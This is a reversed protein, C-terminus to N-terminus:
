LRYETPTQGTNKKFIRIFYNYDRYGVLESIEKIKKNTNKLYHKAAELRKNIMYQNITDDFAKKFIICAYSESVSFNTSIDQLSLEENDYNEDIYHRIQYALPYQTYRSDTSQFFSTLKDLLYSEIDTLFPMQWVMDRLAEPTELPLFVASGCLSATEYLKHLLAIFFNKTTSILTGDFRRLKEVMNKVYMMCATEDHQGLAKEFPLSADQGFQYVLHDHEEEYFLVANCKYYFGRQLCISATQYSQYLDMFEPVPHGTALLFQCTSELIDYLLYCINGIESDPVPNKEKDKLNIHVVTTDETKEGILVCSFKSLALRSKLLDCISSQLSPLGEEAKLLHIIFTIWSGSTDVKPYAITLFDQLEKRQQARVPQLLSLAIKNKIAPLSLSLKHALADSEQKFSTLSLCKEVAIKLTAILEAPQFPKEIYNIASLRIASKLYEKDAYGSMFIIISDPLQERIHFAMTVGDMCPMKVDTLIIDPLFSLAKELGERGDEASEVKTIGLDAWPIISLIGDRTYSEDDVLLLKM